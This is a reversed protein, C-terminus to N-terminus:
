PSPMRYRAQERASTCRISARRRQCVRRPSRTSRQDGRSTYEPDSFLRFQGVLGISFLLIMSTYIALSGRYRFRRVLVMFVLSALALMFVDRLVVSLSPTYGRLEAASFMSVYAVGSSVLIVLQIVLHSSPRDKM